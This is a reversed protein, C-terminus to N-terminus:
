ALALGPQRLRERQLPEYDPNLECGIFRRGLRSAVQGTTGSGFFPDFVVDGVRSGALVCPEVLQEPYTAFHAGDFSQTPITWVSRRNRSTVVDTVAASFSENQKARVRPKPNADYGRGFGVGTGTYRGIMERHDGSRTDWGSPAAKPNVGAGRPHANGTVPEQMADFDYFYKESKSLLFLYEHAKTCRDRTSEPMPNPKHWIIDQRLYWGADQLAFALRWPQGMLDKAKLGTNRKARGIGSDGHLAAVHKGGTSGGWKGDNAYADGMNVWATGDDALLARCLEFVDVLTDIFERLTPEHGIQGDVGYDRLGWYPSTVITQVKVGDAIMARMTERCDGFHCKDIWIV